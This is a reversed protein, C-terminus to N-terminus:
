SGCFEPFTQEIEAYEKTAEEWSRSNTTIIVDLSRLRGVCRNATSLRDNIRLQQGVGICVTAVFALIASVICALRWGDPGERVLPGSAATIGAVLTCAASSSISTCVLRTNAKRLQAAIREAQRLSNRVMKLLAQHEHEQEPSIGARWTEPAPAVLRESDAHREHDTIVGAAGVPEAASPSVPGSRSDHAPEDVGNLYEPTLTSM